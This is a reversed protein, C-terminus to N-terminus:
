EERERRERAEARRADRVRDEENMQDVLWRWYQQKVPPERDLLYKTRNKKYDSFFGELQVKSKILDKFQLPQGMEVHINYEERLAKNKAFIREREKKAEEIAEEKQKRIQEM